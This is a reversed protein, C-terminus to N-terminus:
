KKFISYIIALTSVITAAISVNRATIQDNARQKKMTQGIIVVDGQQLFYYPSTLVDPTTLNIHGFQRRGNAERIVLVSDRIAYLTMDGALGLAEMISIREGPISYLGPKQVEGLVTFKYNLFRVVYYPNSLLGSLKSNLLDTLQAKNLGEVHLVGIGSFEINGKEDVLYGSASASASFEGTSSSSSGGSAIPQNYPATAAPNDSYVIISIIDGKQIVPEPYHIQSLQSTDLRGQMYNLNKAPKCSVTLSAMTIIIASCFLLQKYYTM